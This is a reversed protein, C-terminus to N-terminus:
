YIFSCMMITYLIVHVHNRYSPTKQDIHINLLLQHLRALLVLGRGRKKQLNQIKTCGLAVAGGDTTIIRPQSQNRELESQLDVCGILSLWASQCAELNNLKFLKM